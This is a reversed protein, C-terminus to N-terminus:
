LEDGVVIEGICCLEDLARRELDRARPLEDRALRCLTEACPEANDIQGKRRRRCSPIGDRVNQLREPQLDDATM